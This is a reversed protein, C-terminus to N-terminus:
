STRGPPPLGEAPKPPLGGAHVAGRWLRLCNLVPAVDLRWLEQATCQTGLATADKTIVQLMDEVSKDAAMEFDIRLIRGSTLYIKMYLM